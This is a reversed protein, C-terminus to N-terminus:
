EKLPAGSDIAGETLAAVAIDMIAQVELAEWRSPSIASSLGFNMAHTKVQELAARMRETANAAAQRLDSELVVIRQRADVLDELAKRLFGDLDDQALSWAIAEETWRPSVRPEPTPNIM